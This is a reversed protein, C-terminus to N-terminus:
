KALADDNYLRVVAQDDKLADISVGVTAPDLYNKQIAVKLLWIGDRLAETMKRANIIGSYRLVRPDLEMLVTKRVELNMLQDINYQFRVTHYGFDALFFRSRIKKREDQKKWFAATFQREDFGFTFKDDWPNIRFALERKFGTDKEISVIKRYYQEPQYYKHFIKSSWNLCGDEQTMAHIVEGSEDEYRINFKVGVVREGTFRDTVCTSVTYDV